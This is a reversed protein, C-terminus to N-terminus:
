RFIGTRVDETKRGQAVPLYGYQDPKQTEAKKKVPDPMEKWEFDDSFYSVLAVLAWYAAGVV